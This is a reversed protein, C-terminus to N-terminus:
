LLLRDADRLFHTVLHLLHSAVGLGAELFELLDGRRLGIMRPVEGVVRHMVLLPRLLGLPLRGCLMFGTAPLDRLADLVDRM